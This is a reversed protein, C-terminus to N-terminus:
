APRKFIARWRTAPEAASPMVAVLEWGDQGLSNFDRELASPGLALELAKVLESGTLRVKEDDTNPDDEFTLDTVKYAWTTLPRGQEGGRYGSAGGGVTLRDAASAAGCLVPAQRKGRNSIVM